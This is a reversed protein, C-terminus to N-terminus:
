LAPPATTRCVNLHPKCHSTHCYRCMHWETTMLQEVSWCRGIAVHACEVGVVNLAANSLISHTEAYYYKAHAAHPLGALRTLLKHVTNALGIPIYIKIDTADQKQIKYLISPPTM